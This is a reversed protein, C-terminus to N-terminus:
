PLSPTSAPKVSQMRWTGDQERLELVRTRAAGPEMAGETGPGVYDAEAVRDTVELRWWGAGHDLVELSTVQMSLGQVRLGRAAWQDLMAVDADGAPAQDAYLARLAAADGQAWAEARRRDWLRLIQAAQTEPRVVAPATPAEPDPQAAPWLVVVALGLVAGFALMPWLRPGSRRHRSHQHLQSM